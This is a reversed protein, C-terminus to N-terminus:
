KSENNERDKSNQKIFKEIEVRKEVEQDKELILLKNRWCYIKM